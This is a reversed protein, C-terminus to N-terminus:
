NTHLAGAQPPRPLYRLSILAIRAGVRVYTQPGTASIEGFELAQGDLTLVARPPQLGIRAPDFEGAPRWRLVEAAATGALGDLWNDDARLATGDTHWWHGDRREYHQAAADGLRLELHQIAAPTTALLTGPAARQDSRWQWLALALLLAVACLLGLRQRGARSM